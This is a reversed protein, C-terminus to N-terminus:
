NVESVFPIIEDYFYSFFLNHMCIDEIILKFKVDSLPEFFNSILLRFLLERLRRIDHKFLKSIYTGKKEQAIKVIQDMIEEVDKEIVQMLAEEDKIDGM